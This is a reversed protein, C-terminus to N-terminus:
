CYVNADKIGHSCRRKLHGLFCGLGGKSFDSLNAQWSTSKGKKATREVRLGPNCLFLCTSERQLRTQGRSLRNPKFLVTAAPRRWVHVHSKCVFPYLSLWQWFFNGGLSLLPAKTDKKLLSVHVQQGCPFSIIFEWARKECLGLSRGLLLKGFIRWFKFMFLSFIPM